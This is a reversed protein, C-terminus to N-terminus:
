GRCVPPNPNWRGDDCTLTSRGELAYNGDCRYSVTKGHGFDKGSVRGNRISGPRVCSAVTTLWIFSLNLSWYWKWQDTVPQLNRIMLQSMDHKMHIIPVFGKHMHNLSIPLEVLPHTVYAIKICRIPEQKLYTPSYVCLYRWWWCRNANKIMLFFLFSEMNGHTQISVSWLFRWFTTSCSHCCRKDTINIPKAM